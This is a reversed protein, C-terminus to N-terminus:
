LKNFEQTLDNISQEVREILVEIIPKVFDGDCLFVETNDFQLSLRVKYGNNEIRKLQFLETLKKNLQEIETNLETAKAFIETTM